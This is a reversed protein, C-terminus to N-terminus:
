RRRLKRSGALALTAAGAIMMLPLAPEPVKEYQLNLTGIAFTTIGLNTVIKSAAVLKLTGPTGSMISGTAKATMGGGLDIVTMGSTWKKGSATVKIGAGTAMITGTVGLQVPVKLLTSGLAKNIATGTIKAAGAVDPSGTFVGKENNMITITIQSLPQMATPTLMITTSGAFANGAALTFNTASTSAGGAGTGVFTLPSNTGLVFGLSGSTLPFPAGAQAAGGVMAAVGFAMAIFLRRM